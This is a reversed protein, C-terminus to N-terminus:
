GLLARFLDEMFSHWMQRQVDLEYDGRTCKESVVTFFLFSSYECPFFLMEM